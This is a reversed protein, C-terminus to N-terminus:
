DGHLPALCFSTSASPAKLAALKNSPLALYAALLKECTRSLTAFPWDRKPTLLAAGIGRQHNDAAEATKANDSRFAVFSASSTFAKWDAASVWETM